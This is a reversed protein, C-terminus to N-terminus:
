DLRINEKSIITKQHFCGTIPTRTRGSPGSWMLEFIQEILMGRVTALKKLLIKNLLFQCPPPSNNNFIYLLYNRRCVMNNGPGSKCQTPGRVSQAKQM